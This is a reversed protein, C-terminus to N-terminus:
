IISSYMDDGSVVPYSLIDFCVGFEIDRGNAATYTEIKPFDNHCRNM